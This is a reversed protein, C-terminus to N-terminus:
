KNEKTVNIPSKNKPSTTTHSQKKKRPESKKQDQQPAGKKKSTREATKNTKANNKDSKQWDSTNTHGKAAKLKQSKQERPM